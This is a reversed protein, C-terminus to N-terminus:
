MQRADLVLLILDQNAAEAAEIEAAEVVEAQADAAEAQYDAINELDNEKLVEVETDLDVDLHLHGQIQLVGDDVLAQVGKGQLHLTVGEVTSAAPLHPDVALVLILHPHCGVDLWLQARAEESKKTVVIEIVLLHLLHHGHSGVTVRHLIILFLLHLM